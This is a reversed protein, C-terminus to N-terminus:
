TRGLGFMRRVELETIHVANEVAKIVGEELVHHLRAHRPHETADHM